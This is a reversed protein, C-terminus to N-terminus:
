GALKYFAMIQYDVIPPISNASFSREGTFRKQIKYIKEETMKGDIEVVENLITKDSCRFIVLYKCKKM